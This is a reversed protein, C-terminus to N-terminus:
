VNEYMSQLESRWRGTGRAQTYWHAASLALQASKQFAPCSYLWAAPPNLSQVRKAGAHALRRRPM